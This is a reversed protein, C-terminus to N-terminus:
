GIMHRVSLCVCISCPSYGIFCLLINVMAGQERDEEHSKVQRAIGDVGLDPRGLIWPEAAM